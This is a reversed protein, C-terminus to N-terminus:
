RHAADWSATHADPALLDRNTAFAPGPTNQGPPPNHFPSKRPEQVAAPHDAVVLAQGRGVLREDVGGHATEHEATKCM